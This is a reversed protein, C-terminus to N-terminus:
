RFLRMQLDAPLPMKKPDPQIQNMRMLEGATRLRKKLAQRGPGDIPAISTKGGDASVALISDIPIDYRDLLEPSHSTVIVQRSKAAETMCDFLLAAAGPHLALEPEEIGVLPMLSGSTNKQLLAVIVGLARLTGDSMSAALFKRPRHESVVSENFELTEKPGLNKVHVSEINPVVVRFFEMVREARDPDHRSLSDFVAALNSGNRALLEGSDPAQLDRIREPNLSYFGMSSLTKYLRDFGLFGSMSVLYLRDQAAAPPNPITSREIKGNKVSFSAPKDPNRASHWICEERQVSYSGGTRAGIEFFYQFRDEKALELEFKLAFHNPRGSSRRRVENIGGRDRIAQDLSFRLSDSCFRIADLFNSKGSGNPGVLFTLADLEVECSAISKYDKITVKKLYAPLNM